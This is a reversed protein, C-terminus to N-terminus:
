PVAEWPNGQYGEDGHAYQELAAMPNLGETFALQEWDTAADAPSYGGGSIADLIARYYRIARELEQTLEDLHWRQEDTLANTEKEM